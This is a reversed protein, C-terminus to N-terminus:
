ASSGKANDEGELQKILFKQRNVRSRLAEIDLMVHSTDVEIRDMNDVLELSQRVLNEDLIACLKKTQLVLTKCDDSIKEATGVMKDVCKQEETKKM